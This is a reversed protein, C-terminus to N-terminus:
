DNLQERSRKYGFVLGASIALLVAPFIFDVAEIRSGGVNWDILKYVLWCVFLAACVILARFWLQTKLSRTRQAESSRTALFTRVEVPLNRYRYARIMRISVVVAGFIGIVVLLAVIERNEALARIANFGLWLFFFPIGIRPLYKGAATSINNQALTSTPNLKAANNFVEIAERRKKQNLLAVGLNNMGYFSNPELELERRCHTEAEKNKGEKLAVLAMMQHSMHWEPALTLLQEAAQRAESLNFIHLQASALTHLNHPLWPNLRVAEKAAEVSDRNRACNRLVISNLRHAWDNAPGVEVARSVYRRAERWNAMEVFAQTLLCLADDDDPALSLAQSLQPIADGPRGVELLARARKKLQQFEETSM